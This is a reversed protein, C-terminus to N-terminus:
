RGACVPDDTSGAHGAGRQRLAETYDAAPDNNALSGGIRGRHRGAPYGILSVRHAM